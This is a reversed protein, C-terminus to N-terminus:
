ALDAFLAETADLWRDLSFRELVRARAREGMQSAREPDDLLSRIGGTLADVDGSRYLLGTEGPVVIESVGGVDAAIVPLRMMGAERLVVPLSERRSPLVLLDFSRLYGLVDDSYGAFCVRDELGRESAAARLTGEEPGSGVICLVADQPLDALAAIADRRVNKERPQNKIENMRMRGVHVRGIQMWVDPDDPDIEAAKSALEMAREPDNRYLFLESKTSYVAAADPHAKLAAEIVREADQMQNSVLLVRALRMAIDVRGPDIRVAESLYFTAGLDARRLMLEALKENAEVSESDIKLASRYELIAEDKSGIAVLERAREVHAAFREEPSSCCLILCTALAAAVRQQLGLRPM